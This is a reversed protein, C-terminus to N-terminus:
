RNNSSIQKQICTSTPLSQSGWPYHAVNVMEGISTWAKLDGHRRKWMSRSTRPPESHPIRIPVVKPSIWSLFQLCQLIYSFKSENWENIFSIKDIESREPDLHPIRPIRPIRHSIQVSKVGFWCYLLQALHIVLNMGRPSSLRKERFTRWAITHKASAVPSCCTEVHKECQRVM